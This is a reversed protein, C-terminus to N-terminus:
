LLQNKKLIRIVNHIESYQDKRELPYCYELGSFILINFVTYYQTQYPSSHLTYYYAIRQHRHVSKDM